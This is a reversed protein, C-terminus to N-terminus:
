RPASVALVRASPMKLSAPLGHTPKVIPTVSKVLQRRVPPPTPRDEPFSSEDTPPPTPAQDDVRTPEEDRQSPSDFTVEPFDYGSLAETKTDRHANALAIVVFHILVAAGFAVGVRWRQRPQYLLATTM